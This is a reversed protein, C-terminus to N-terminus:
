PVALRIPVNTQEGIYHPLEASTVWNVSWDVFLLNGAERHMDRGWAAPATASLSALGPPVPQGNVLLNRDGALITTPPSEPQADLGVFFSVNRNGFTSVFNSNPIRTDAPCWVMMPASLENSMVQFVRFAEGRLAYERAGGDNTSVMMPNADNHDGAWLRFALGTQKLNNVCCMRISDRKMHAMGTMALTLLLVLIGLIIMVVDIRTLGRPRNSLRLKM